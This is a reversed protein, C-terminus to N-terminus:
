RLTPTATHMCSEAGACSQWCCVTTGSDALFLCVGPLHPKVLQALVIAAKINIDLIKDIASESMDLIDGAAPNVAANSILMDIKSFEKLAISVFAELHAKKGVNAACGVAEVGQEHLERLTNDM